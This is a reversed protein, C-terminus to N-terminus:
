PIIIKLSLPMVELQINSKFTVPDGDIHAKLMGSNIIELKQAKIVKYYKSKTLGKSYLLLAIYLSKWWPFKKLICIDILGDNIEALPAIYAENGFQSSNAFSILFANLKQCHNNIMLQYEQSNYRFFEKLVLRVYSLFGRKRHKAFLHGIHADFGLGALNVYIENNMRITDMLFLNREKLVVLAKKANMPIKLFRSLGNGSGMPIIGFAVNTNVLSRAIENVTGDGGVAVVLDYHEIVSNIAIITAHKEYQTYQIDIDYINSTFEKRIIKEIGAKKKGGSIPNIIFRIKLNQAQGKLEM